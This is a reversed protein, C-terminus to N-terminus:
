DYNKKIEIAKRMLKNISDSDINFKERLEKRAKLFKCRKNFYNFSISDSKVKDNELLKCAGESIVINNESIFKNVHILTQNTKSDSQKFFIDFYDQFEKSDMIKDGYVPVKKSSKSHLATNSTSTTENKVEKNKCSYSVTIVLLFFFASIYYKM